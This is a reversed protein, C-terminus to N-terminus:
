SIYSTKEQPTSPTTTDNKQTQWALFDDFTFPSVDGAHLIFCRSEEFILAILGRPHRPKVPFEAKEHKEIMAFIM